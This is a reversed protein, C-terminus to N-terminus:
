SEIENSVVGTKKTELQKMSMWDLGPYTKV